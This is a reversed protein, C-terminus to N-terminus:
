KQMIKQMAKSIDKFYHPLKEMEAAIKTCNQM